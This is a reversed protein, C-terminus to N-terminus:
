VNEIHNSILNNLTKELEYNNYSSTFIYKNNFNATLYTLLTIKYLPNKIKDSKNVLIYYPKNHIKNKYSHASRISEWNECDVVIFFLDINELYHLIYKNLMNCEAYDWIHLITNNLQKKTFEIGVTVNSVYPTKYGNVYAHILHSKGTYSNGLFCINLIKM